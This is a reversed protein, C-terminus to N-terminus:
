PTIKPVLAEWTCGLTAQIRFLTTAKLNTEGSEIKQLVRPHLDVIEAFREQTLGSAKRARQINAGLKALM